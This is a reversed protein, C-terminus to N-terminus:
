VKIKTLYVRALVTQIFEGEWLLVAARGLHMWQSGNQVLCSSSFFFVNVRGQLCSECSLQCSILSSLLYLGQHFLM